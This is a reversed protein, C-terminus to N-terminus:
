RRPIGLRRREVQAQSARAMMGRATIADVHAAVTIEHWNCGNVMLQWVDETSM